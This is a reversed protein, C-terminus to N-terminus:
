LKLLSLEEILGQMRGDGTDKEKDFDLDIFKQSFQNWVKNGLTEDQDNQIPLTNAEEEVLRGVM